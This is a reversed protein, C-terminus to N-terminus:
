IFIHLEVQLVENLDILLERCECVVQFLVRELVHALEAGLPPLVGVLVVVRDCLEVFCVFLLTSSAFNFLLHADFDQRYRYHVVERARGLDESWVAGLKVLNPRQQAVYM